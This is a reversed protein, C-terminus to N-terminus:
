TCHILKAPGHTQLLLITSYSKRVMDACDEPTRSVGGRTKLESAFFKWFADHNLVKDKANIKM